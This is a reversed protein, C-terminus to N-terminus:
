LLIQKLKDKKIKNTATKPMENIFSFGEPIKYDALFERCHNRLDSETIKDKAEDALVVFAYPVEQRLHDDMGVVAAEVVGAFRLLHEEIERPYINEGGCVILDKFRGVIKIYKEEDILALDGTRFWGDEYFVAKTEEPKKYYEKMTIDGKVCLEGVEGTGMIKGTETDRIQVDVGPFPHGITGVKNKDPLNLAVVPSTETLGYGELIEHNFKAKFAKSVDVPLPGGGSVAYKLHHKEAIGEPAFRAMMHLMPPVSIFVVNQESVAAEILRHPNFQPYLMVKSGAFLAGFVITTMAYTHFLPLMCLFTEKETLDLVEHYGLVDAYINKHTLVVGKPDGTTGSTYLILCNDDETAAPNLPTSDTDPDTLITNIDIPEIHTHKVAQIAKEHLLPDYLLIKSDSHRLLIELEDSKLLPNLPVAAQGAGLIGFLAFFFNPTNPVLMAVNHGQDATKKKLFNGAINVRDALKKFTFVIDDYKLIQKSAYKEASQAFVHYLEM